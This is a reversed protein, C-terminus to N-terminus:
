GPGGTSPEGQGNEAYSSVLDTALTEGQANSLSATRLDITQTDNGSGLILTGGSIGAYPRAKGCRVRSSGPVFNPNSITLTREGARGASSDGSSAVNEEPLPPNEDADSDSDTETWDGSLSLRYGSGSYRSDNHLHHFTLSETQLQNLGNEM